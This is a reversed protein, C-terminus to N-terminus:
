ACVHPPKASYILDGFRELPVHRVAIADNRVICVQYGTTQLPLTRQPGVTGFDLMQKCNVPTQRARRSETLFLVWSIGAADGGEVNLLGSLWVVAACDALLAMGGWGGGLIFVGPSRDALGGDMGGVVACVKLWKEIEAEWNKVLSTPCVVIARRVAPQGKVKGQKLLTWLVTISQLTKGLGMDDALICGNGEFERMGMVQPPFFPEHPILPITVTLTLNPSPAPPWTM